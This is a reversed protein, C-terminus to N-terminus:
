FTTSLELPANVLNPRSSKNRGPYPTYPPNCASRVVVAWAHINSARQCDEAYRRRRVMADVSRAGVWLHLRRARFQGSRSAFWQAEFRGLIAVALLAFLRPSQLCSVASSCESGLSHLPESNPAEPPRTDRSRPTQLRAGTGPDPVEPQQGLRGAGIAPLVDPPEAFSRLVGDLIGVRHGHLRSCRCVTGTDAQSGMM